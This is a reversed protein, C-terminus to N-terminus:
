GARNIVWWSSTLVKIKRKGLWHQIAPNFATQTATKHFSKELALIVNADACFGVFISNTTTIWLVIRSHETCTDPQKGSPWNQSQHRIIIHTLNIEGEREREAKISKKKKQDKNTQQYLATVSHTSIVFHLWWTNAYEIVNCHNFTVFYSNKWEWKEASYM